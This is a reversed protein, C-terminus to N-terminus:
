LQRRADVTLQAAWAAIRAARPDGLLMRASRDGKGLPEVVIREARSGHRTERQDEEVRALRVGEAQRLGRIREFRLRRSRIEAVGGSHCEGVHEHPGELEIACAGQELVEIAGQPLAVLQQTARHQPVQSEDFDTGATEPARVIVRTECTLDPLLVAGFFFLHRLIEVRGRENGRVATLELMGPREGLEHDPM